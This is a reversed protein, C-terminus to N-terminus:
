QLPSTTAWRPGRTTWLVEVNLDKRRVVSQQQVVIKDQRLQGHIEFFESGVSLQAETLNAEPVGLATAVDAVFRFHRTERLTVLRQAQAPDTRPIAAALVTVDATNVNVPTAVPLVTIYPSLVAVSKASLGLWVLQSVRQPLLPALGANGNDKSTDLAFRLNEALLALEGVPIQLKVFLRTFAELAPQSVKGKDVLNRVNLRSQLDTISGSLFTQSLTTSTDLADNNSGSSALFTSLRAEELPVAWPEALHDVGPSGGAGASRGDERLILRAWDLAGNLIWQSQMRAREASEIELSRWQQWLAASALTAVLAVTLM